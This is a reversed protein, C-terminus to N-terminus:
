LYSGGGWGGVNKRRGVWRDNVRGGGWGGIM